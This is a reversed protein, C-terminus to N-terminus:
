RRQERYRTACEGKNLRVILWSHMSQFAEGGRGFVGNIVIDYPPVFTTSACLPAPVLTCSNLARKM